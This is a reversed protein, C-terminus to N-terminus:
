QNEKKKISRMTYKTALSVIFALLGGWLMDILATTFDFKGFTALNTLDYVGYVVLGFPIGLRASDGVINKEDIKDVVFYNLGFALLIFSSLGYWFNTKMKEGNQIKKIMTGFAKNTYLFIMSMDLTIYYVFVILLSLFFYGTKNM